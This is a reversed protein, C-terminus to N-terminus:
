KKHSSRRKKNSKMKRSDVKGNDTKTLKFNEEAEQMKAVTRKRAHEVKARDKQKEIAFFAENAAAERRMEKATIRKEQKVKRDLKKSERMERNQGNWQEGDEHFAPELSLVEVPKFTHLRLPVFLDDSNGLFSLLEPFFYQIPGHLSERTFKACIEGCLSLIANKSEPQTRFLRGALSFFAPSYKPGARLFDALLILHCISAKESFCAVELLKMTPVVISHRLHDLPFLISAIKTIILHTRNMLTNGDCLPTFLENVFFDTIESTSSSRTLSLLNEQSAASLDEPVKIFHHMLEILNSSPPGTPMLPAVSESFSDDREVIMVGDGVNDMEELGDEAAAFKDMESQRVLKSVKDQVEAETVMRDGAMAKKINDMQFSRALFALDDDAELASTLMRGQDMDRRELSHFLGKFSGDLDELEAEAEMKQRRAAARLEKSKSILSDYSFPEEDREDGSGVYTNKIESKTMDGIKKGFHTLDTEQELSYKSARKNQKKRVM